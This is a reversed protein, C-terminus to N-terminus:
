VHRMTVGHKQFAQRPAPAAIALASAVFPEGTAIARWARVTRTPSAKERRSSVVREARASISDISFITGVFIGTGGTYRTM